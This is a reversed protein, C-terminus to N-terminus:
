FMGELTVSSGSADGSGSGTAKVGIYRKVDVPLRVTATAAIAGVGGAGTQTIVDTYLTSPGSLDANDSHVISYKMTKADPLPTAGLAPATIKFEVPAVHDGYSGLGLDIADSTTSAAGNPLAKTVKVAADKMSYGM